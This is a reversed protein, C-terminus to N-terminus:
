VLTKIDPYLISIKSPIKSVINIDLKGSNSFLEHYVLDSLNDGFNMFSDKNIKIHQSKMSKMNTINLRFGYTISLLIKYELKLNNIENPIKDFIDGNKSIVDRLRHKIKHYYTKSKDLISRRLFHKYCWDDLQKKNHSYKSYLTFIKLISLHDGYKHVLEKKAKTLKDTMKKILNPDESSSILIDPKIFLEGINRKSADIISFIAVLERACKLKFALVLAVGEMPDIQLEAVVNGLKTIKEHEILGLNILENVASRIYKERPPEIFNTLVNMLNDITQIDKLYALRLCMDYINSTRISPEPFKLMKNEYDDKTYLHYCVGPETRGSRGKRQIVQAQSIFKKELAHARLEPDYYSFIEYGCDIVYKIGEITLSSEAVNTSVVLKRNVNNTAYKIYKDKDQALEQLVPDMGAYVSICFVRSNEYSKIETLKLQDCITKTENISSVFFLIDGTSGDAILKKIINLGYNMYEKDTISKELFHSEIPYNTKAGISISKFKFESFYSEFLTKDITASMIVVKFDDLRKRLTNRLLYLLFDIQIKREHAEDIIVANFDSLLPDNLLRAVITGDTAYLLKTSESVKAAGKFQYGVEKGLKVDLTKAAFEAASKAIIQKPLTVAIKGKYDLSHLVYKPFLVTKGSGTGSIVLIVQNDHIEKIIKEPNQYAPFKSWIKGMVKYTDTFEEGTLPNKNIGEPDLIGINM